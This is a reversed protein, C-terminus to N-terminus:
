KNQAIHDFVHSPVVKQKQTEDFEFEELTEESMKYGSYPIPRIVQNSLSHGRFTQTSKEPITTIVAKESTFDRLTM